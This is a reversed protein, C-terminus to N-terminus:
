GDGEKRDDADRAEREAVKRELEETAHRIMESQEQAVKETLIEESANLIGKFAVWAYVSVLVTAAVSWVLASGGDAGAIGMALYVVVLWYLPPSLLYALFKLHPNM